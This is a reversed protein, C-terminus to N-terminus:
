IINKLLAIISIVAIEDASFLPKVNKNGASSEWDRDKRESASYLSYRSISTVTLITDKEDETLSNSDLISDEYAVVYDYVITFELGRKSLLGQLFITLSSKATSALQSNEVIFILMNDPDAMISDVITNNFLIINKYSNHAKGMKNSMFRIQDRLEAASNPTSNNQYYNRLEDYYRKGKYDFPNASNMPFASAVKSKSEANSTFESQNFESDTSCSNFFWVLVTCLLLNKM